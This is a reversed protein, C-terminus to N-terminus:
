KSAPILTLSQFAIALQREDTASPTKADPTNFDLTNQGSKLSKLPLKVTEIIGAGEVHGNYIQQGNLHIILQQSGLSTFQLRLIVLQPENFIPLDSNLYFSISSQLGLSWRFNTEAFSWNDFKLAASNFTVPKSLPVALGTVRYLAQTPLKVLKDLAFAEIEPYDIPTVLLVPQGKEVSQNILSIPIWGEANSRLLGNWINLDYHNQFIDRLKDTLGRSASVGYSLACIPLICGYTGIILPNSYKNIEDRVTMLANAQVTQNHKAVTVATHTILVCGILLVPWLIALLNIKLGGMTSWFSNAYYLMAALGIIVLPFIPLMYRIHFHKTVILVQLGITFLIVFFVRAVDRDFASGLISGLAYRQKSQQNYALEQAAKSSKFIILLLFVFLLITIFLVPFTTSLIKLKSLFDPFVFFGVQKGIGYNGEHTMLSLGWKYLQGLKPWAPAIFLVFALAATITAIAGQRFKLLLILFFLPAFNLKTALGFGCVIGIHIPNISKCHENNSKFIAPTLLGLLLTSSFFLLSETSPYAISPCAISFLFPSIQSVTALMFSNTSAYVRKGLYLLSITNLAVMLMSVTLLYSEPNALVSFFIEERPGNTGWLGLVWQIGMTMAMLAQITTGPHDTHFPAHGNLLMLGNLLYQYSPDADYIRGSYLPFLAKIFYCEIIFFIIPIILLKLTSPSIM